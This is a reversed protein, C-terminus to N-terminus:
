DSDRDGSTPPALPAFIERDPKLDLLPTQDLCDLGRVYLSGDKISELKVIATGIPNPRVPTRLSFAGRSNGDDRPSQLLIDRRSRHLWYIVELRAYQELQELAMRWHPFVTIQCIPGDIRGQRPCEMRDHWPTSIVGIFELGADLASPPETTIEGERVEDRRVL